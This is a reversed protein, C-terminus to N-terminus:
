RLSLLDEVVTFMPHSHRTDPTAQASDLCQQTSDVADPVCRQVTTAHSLKQTIGCRSKNNALHASQM